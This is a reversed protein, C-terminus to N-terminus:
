CSFCNRYTSIYFKGKVKKKKKPEAQHWSPSAMRQYNLKLSNPEAKGLGFLFLGSSVQKKKKKLARIEQQENCIYLNHKFRSSCRLMRLALLESIKYVFESAENTGM